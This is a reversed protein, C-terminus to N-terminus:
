HELAVLNVACAELDTAVALHQGDLRLHEFHEGVKDRV